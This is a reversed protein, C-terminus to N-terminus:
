RKTKGRGHLPKFYHMDRYKAVRKGILAAQEDAVRFHIGSWVRASVIEDVAQSFHTFSRTLGANNTDSWAMKNGRFFDKLTEGVSGSLGLHGSPHDPYPPNAILSEWGADKVTRPNGDTDAERIATIPRWFSWHAKDDWVSIASDAATLYLMAFLRASDVTSVNEQAALTRFIRSWTRAPHEAWYNAAHTQDETRTTSTKSGVAKVEAFEKAYQNSTLKHPGKSRFQSSSVILFPKVDKLWANPDNVFAPLTPRWAGPTTGIAFRFPGFRGDNMRAAIMAAAAAEGANIGGTKAPGDPIAALSSNYLGLLAPQQAPVINVLVRYAATAVAADKSDWPMAAPSVLYPQYGRDIGNVADYVAGHVMAFHLISVPPAQGATVTLANSANLNWQTVADARAVGPTALVILAAAALVLGRARAPHRNM